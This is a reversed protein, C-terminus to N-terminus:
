TLIERVSRWQGAYYCEWERLFVDMKVCFPEKACLWVQEALPRVSAVSQMSEGRKRRVALGFLSEWPLKMIRRISVDCNSRFHNNAMDASYLKYDGKTVYTVVVDDGNVVAGLIKVLEYDTTVEFSDAIVM